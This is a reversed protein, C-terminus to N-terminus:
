HRADRWMQLMTPGGDIRIEGMDVFGQRYYLSRNRPNTWELYCPAREADARELVPQLVAAGLGRGQQEPLTSVVNLYWHPDKPHADHMAAGLIGFRAMEDDSFPSPDESMAPEDASLRDSATVADGFTPDRWFAASDSGALHVVGRDPLMDDVMGGFVIMLKSLRTADDQLAWSLVPDDYFGTAAIRALLDRDELTAPRVDTM